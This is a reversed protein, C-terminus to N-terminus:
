CVVAAGNPFDLYYDSEANCGEVGCIGQGSNDLLNDPINHAQVCKPCIQTWIQLGEAKEKEDPEAFDDFFIGNFILKM